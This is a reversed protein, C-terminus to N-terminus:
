KPMPVSGSEPMKPKTNGPNSNGSSESPKMGGMGKQNNMAMSTGSTGRQTGISNGDQYSDKRAM